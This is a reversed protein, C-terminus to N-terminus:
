VKQLSPWHGQLVHYEDDGGPRAKESGLSEKGVVQGPFWARAVPVVHPQLLTNPNFFSSFLAKASAEDEDGKEGVVPEVFQVLVM